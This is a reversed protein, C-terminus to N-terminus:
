KKNKVYLEPQMIHVIDRFMKEIEKPSKELFKEIMKIEHEEFICYNAYNVSVDDVIRGNGIGIDNLMGEYKHYNSKIILFPTLTQIAFCLAHYRGTIILKFGSIERIYEKYNDIYFLTRISRHSLKRGLRFLLFIIIKKTYFKCYKIISQLDTRVQSNTLVPIYSYLANQTSFNYLKESLKTNVSDTVGIRNKSNEKNQNYTSYYTLDPVVKSSINYRSLEIQSLKDRVYILDFYKLYEAFDDGNDQYTTNILVVPIRFNEKVYKGITILNKARPQAHHLTGEGNVIVIDAKSIKKVFHKNNFWDVNTPNTAIVQINNNKLLRHINEMVLECGHHDEFSTDNLIVAKKLMM